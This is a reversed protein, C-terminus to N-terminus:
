LAESCLPAKEKEAQLLNRKTGGILHHQVRCEKRM